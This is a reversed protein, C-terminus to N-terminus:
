RADVREFYINRSRGTTLLFGSVRKKKDRIFEVTFPGTFIDSTFPALKMADNRPGKVFLASDKVSFVYRTDLEASYYTGTYEPLSAAALTFPKVKGYSRDQVGASQLVLRTNAENGRFSYSAGSNPHVFVSDSHPILAAGATMLKGKNYRLRVIAKSHLDMYVGAWKQLAVTDVIVAPKEAHEGATRDTVFLDAVKRSLDSPNIGALNALVIVSFHQDPFRLIDARYGADAGNHEVIKNGKYQGIILGSAYNQQRGDNFVGPTLMAAIFNEGGIKKSYFNEDWKALDEPTTCLSTAGYNDFVPISIEWRGNDAKDYASTRNVIIESHDSHFVTNNMGLPKFFVSDDYDRLSVGTIRKVAIGLLTFGTNCYVYEDGPVFNLARQRKLMDMIDNETIVDDERWGALAQLDWQDRLGSTHHLLHNITITHGFDPVEPIYKRIDDTLSLKGEQALRQIAAATFQKSISAVHFISSSSIAIQYELNSMGYGREYIIRGDKVVAMSCGPSNTKDWESFVLDIKKTISDQVRGDSDQLQGHARFVMFILLVFTLSQCIAPKFSM